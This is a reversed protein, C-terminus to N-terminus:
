CTDTRHECIYLFTCKLTHVCMAQTYVSVRLSVTLLLAVTVKAIILETQHAEKILRTPILGLTLHVLFLHKIVVAPWSPSRGRDLQGPLSFLFFFYRSHTLSFCIPPSLRSPLTFCWSDQPTMLTQTFTLYDGSCQYPEVVFLPSLALPVPCEPFLLFCKSVSLSLVSQM